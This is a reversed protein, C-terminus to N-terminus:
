WDLHYYLGNQGNHKRLCATEVDNTLFTEKRILEVLML